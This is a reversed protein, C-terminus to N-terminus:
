ESPSNGIAFAYLFIALLGLLDWGTDQTREAYGSVDAALNSTLMVTATSFMMTSKKM